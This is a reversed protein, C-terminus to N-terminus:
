RDAAGSSRAATRALQAREAPELEGLLRSLAAHRAGESAGSFTASLSQALHEAESIAPRYVIGKPTRERDVLGREALRNLVTQVTTYASPKALQRRVEQVRGEGHEWLVQM